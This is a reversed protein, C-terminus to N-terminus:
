PLADRAVVTLRVNNLLTINYTQQGSLGQGALYYINSAAPMAGTRMKKYIYPGYYFKDHSYEYRYKHLNISGLNYGTSSATSTFWGGLTGNNYLYYVATDDQDSLLTSAAWKRLATGFKIETGTYQSLAYEIARYNTYANGQVVNKFFDAGGYNRSLYAGLAYNLSYSILAYNGRYWTAVSYEDFYNFLPLRGESIYPYAGDSLQATCPASSYLVGRPGNVGLKDAVLDETALSCMEDIWTATGSSGDTQLITKQYFQIMHQFEHALTSIIESPWYGTIDWGGESTAYLVADLYFMIRANSFSVADQKFNDKAWFYGLVGGTTSNDNEIDFLLITIEDNPTILMGRDQDSLLGGPAGWEEGYIATVWDYIDNDLSAKLFNDAMKNVMGQDVKYAKNSSSGTWCNDAVWINLKKPGYSTSIWSSAYRCTANVSTYADIKFRGTSTGATDYRPEATPVMNLLFNVPNIKNLFAYPNRNFETVEPKGRTGAMGSLLPNPKIATVADSDSVISQQISQDSENLTPYVTDTSTNINTFIFYLDKPGGTIDITLDLKTNPVPDGAGLTYAANDKDYLTYDTPNYEKITYPDSGNITDSLSGDVYSPSSGLASAGSALLLDKKKSDSQPTCGATFFLSIFASVLLVRVFTIKNFM